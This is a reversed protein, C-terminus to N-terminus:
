AKKRNRTMIKSDLCLFGLDTAITMHKKKVWIIYCFHFLFDSKRLHFGNQYILAALM